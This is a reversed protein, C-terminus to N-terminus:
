TAFSLPDLHEESMQLADEPKTSKRRRPGLPALSSNRSAAVAWFRRFSAFSMGKGSGAKARHPSSGPSQRASMAVFGLHQRWFLLNKLLISTFRGVVARDDRHRQKGFQFPARSRSSFGSAESRKRRSM